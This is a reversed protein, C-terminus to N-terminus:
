WLFLQSWCYIRRMEVQKSICEIVTNLHSSLLLCALLELRPISHDKMQVLRCKAVLLSTIVPSNSIVRIDVAACYAVTSADCFGHLELVDDPNSTTSVYRDINIHKINGLSKLLNNWEKAFKDPIVDDWALKKNCINKFLLCTQLVMPPIVGLPDYFM